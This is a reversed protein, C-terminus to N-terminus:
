LVNKEGRYVIKGNEFDFCSGYEWAADYCALINESPVGHQINHVPNFVFGGEPSLIKIREKVQQRVEDVTGKALITQTDIGGGWFVLKDGFEKKLRSPDMGTAECQVPNLIDVGCDILIPILKYISGCCHFFVKWCTNEHIWSFIKKYYPAILKRFMEPAILEGRQTGFDQGFFIAFIRRGGTLLRKSM